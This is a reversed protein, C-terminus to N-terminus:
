ATQRAEQLLANLEETAAKCRAYMITWIIGHGALFVGAVLALDAPTEVWGVALGVIAFAATYTAYHVAAQKLLGWSDIEYIVVGAMPVIGFLGSVLMHALLAGAESGCAALLAPPLGLSGGRAFGGAIVILVGVVMGLLAGLAGLKAAKAFMGIVGREELTGQRRPHLAEVGM